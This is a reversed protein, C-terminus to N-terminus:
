RGPSMGLGAMSNSMRSGAASHHGGRTLSPASRYGGACDAGGIRV